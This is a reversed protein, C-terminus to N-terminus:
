SFRIPVSKRCIPFLSVFANETPPSNILKVRSDGVSPRVFECVELPFWLKFKGSGRSRSHHEKFGLCFQTDYESAFFYNEPM